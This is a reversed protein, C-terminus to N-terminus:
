VQPETVQRGRYTGCTQCARHPLTVQKCRPCRTVTPAATKLWQAKRHRTRARSKKSKPVAM